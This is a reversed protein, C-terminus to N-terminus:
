DTGEIVPYWKLDEIRIYNSKAFRYEYILEGERNFARPDLDNWYIIEEWYFTVPEGLKVEKSQRSLEPGVELYVVKPDNVIISIVTAKERENNFSIGGVTKVPDENHFYYSSIRSVWFLGFKKNSVATIPKEQSDFIYISGWEYNVQDLLISDQPVFSNARAASLGDLRYGGLYGFILFVIIFFLISILKKKM